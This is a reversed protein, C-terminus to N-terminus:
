SAPGGVSPFAEVRSIVVRRTISHTGTIFRVIRFEEGVLSPDRSSDITVIHGIQPGDTDAPLKLLLEDVQLNAYAERDSKSSAKDEVSCVGSYVETAADFTVEFTSENLTGEEDLNENEITCTDLLFRDSIQRRALDHMRGDHGRDPVGECIGFYCRM